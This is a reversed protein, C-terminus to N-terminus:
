EHNREREAINGVQLGNIIQGTLNIFGCYEQKLTM